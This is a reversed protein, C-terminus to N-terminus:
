TIPVRDTYYKKEVGNSTLAFKVAVNFGNETKMSWVGELKSAVLQDVFRLGFSKNFADSVPKSSTGNDSVQLSVVSDRQELCLLIERNYQQETFAYKISNTVLENIILGCSLAKDTDIEVPQFDLRLRVPHDKEDFSSILHNGLETLYEDLRITRIDDRHYLKEHILGLSYIRANLQKLAEGMEPTAQRSKLNILSSIIQLNNKVRHHIETILTEKEKNRLQLEATRESVTKELEEQVFKQMKENERLQRILENQTKQQGTYFERTFYGLGVSFTLLEATIGLQVLTGRIEGAFDLQALIAGIILMLSALIVIRGRVNKNKLIFFIIAVMLIIEAVLFFNMYLPAYIFDAGFPNLISEFVAQASKYIIGVNLLKHAWPSYKKYQGFENLFLFYLIYVSSYWTSVLNVSLTKISPFVEQLFGYFYLFYLLASFIYVAYKIYVKWRTVFFVILNFVALFAFLGLFFSQTVEVYHQNSAFTETDVISLSVKDPNLRDLENLHISVMRTEGPGFKLLANNVPGAITHIARNDLSTVSIGYAYIYQSNFQIYKQLSDASNNKIYLIFTYKRNVALTDSVETFLHHKSGADMYLFPTVDVIGHASKDLVLEKQGVVENALFFSFLFLCVSCYPLILQAHFRKGPM